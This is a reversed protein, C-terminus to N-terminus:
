LLLSSHWEHSLILELNFNRIDTSRLLLMTIHEGAAEKHVEELCGCHEV